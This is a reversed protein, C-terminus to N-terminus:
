RQATEATFADGVVRPACPSWTITLAGPESSHRRGEDELFAKM